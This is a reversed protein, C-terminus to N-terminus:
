WSAQYIYVCNTFEPMFKLANYLADRTLMLGGWYDEDLEYSGFFSGQTPPLLELAIKNRKEITENAMADLVRQIQLIIREIDAGFLEIPQCVDVGKAFTKIIYGHLWNEKRWQCLHFTISEVYPTQLAPINRIASRNYFYNVPKGIVKGDKKYQIVEGTFEINVDLKEQSFSDVYIVKNLWHDLGM